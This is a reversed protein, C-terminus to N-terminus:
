PASFHPLKLRFVFAQKCPIIPITILRNQMQSKFYCTEVRQAFSSNNLRVLNKGLFQELKGLQCLAYKPCPQPIM